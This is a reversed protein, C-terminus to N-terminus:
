SGARTWGAIRRIVAEGEAISPAWLSLMVGEPKLEAMFPEIDDITTSIHLSKGGDQAKKFVHMWRSAPEKGAGIVYQIADLAEIELLADLHRIAGPGDLHYISHDLWECEEVLEDLFYERFMTQSVMCSFDNSPIYYRGEAFAPLWSTTITQGAALMLQYQSEYCAKFSPRIQSLLATVQDPSDVCDLAFQQPDRLSAALDGGPHLDTLGTLFLGRGRELGLRTLDLIKQWYFSELDVALGPVDAWDHLNPASWSTHAGFEVPAGMAATMIEPGLNPFFGPLIEGGWWTNAASAAFSEVAFEVDLWRDRITAHERQPWPVGNPCPACVQVAPRDLVARNWWAEMRACADAADPKYALDPVNM